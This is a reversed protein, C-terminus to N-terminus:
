HIPNTDSTNGNPGVFFLAPYQYTKQSRDDNDCKTGTSTSLAEADWASNQTLQHTLTITGNYYLGPLEFLNERENVMACGCIGLDCPPKPPPVACATGCPTSGSNTGSGSSSGGSSSGGSSFGGGGGRKCQSLQTFIFLLLSIPLTRM